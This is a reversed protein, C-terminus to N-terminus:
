WLNYWYPPRALKQQIKRVGTGGFTFPYCHIHYRLLPTHFVNWLESFHYTCKDSDVIKNTIMGPVHRAEGSYPSVGSESRGTVACGTCEMNRVAVTFSLMLVSVFISELLSCFSCKMLGVNVNHSASELPRKTYPASEQLRSCIGTGCKAQIHGQMVAPWGELKPTHCPDSAGGRRWTSLISEAIGPFHSQAYCSCKPFAGHYIKLDSMSSAHSGTCKALFKRKIAEHQLFFVEIPVNENM